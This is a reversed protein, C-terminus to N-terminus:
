DTLSGSLFDRALELISTSAEPTLEMDSGRLRMPMYPRAPIAVKKGRGAQGGFQQIASYPKSSSIGAQNGSAFPQISAALGAASIQLMKGPWHGKKERGRITSLALTPWKDPYGERELALETLSLLEVSIGTMLASPASLRRSIATLEETIEKGIVELRLESM